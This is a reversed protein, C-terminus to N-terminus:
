LFKGLEKEAEPAISFLEEAVSRIKFLANLYETVQINLITENSPPEPQQPSNNARAKETIFLIGKVVYEFESIKAFAPNHRKKLLSILGENDMKKYEEEFGLCKDVLRMACLRSRSFNLFDVLYKGFYEENEKATPQQGSVQKRENLTHWENDTHKLKLYNEQLNLANEEERIKSVFDFLKLIPWSLRKEKASTRNKYYLVVTVFSTIIAPTLGLLFTILPNGFVEAISSM